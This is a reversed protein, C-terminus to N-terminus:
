AVSDANRGKAALRIKVGVRTILAEQFPVLMEIPALALLHNAEGSYWGSLEPRIQQSQEPSSGRMEHAHLAEASCEPLWHSLVPRVRM